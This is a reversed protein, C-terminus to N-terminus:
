FTVMSERGHKSIDSSCQHIDTKNWKVLFNLTYRKIKNNCMTDIDKEWINSLREGELSPEYLVTVLEIYSSTIFFFVFTM